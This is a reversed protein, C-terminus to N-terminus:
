YSKSNQLWEDKTIVYRNVTVGGFRVDGSVFSLGSKKLTKQSAINKSHTEGIIKELSLDKFGYKILAQGVESAFGQGWFSRSIIFGVEIDSVEDEPNVYSLNGAGIFTNTPKLYASFYGLGGRSYHMILKKIEDSADPYFNAPFPV